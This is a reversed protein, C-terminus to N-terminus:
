RWEWIHVHSSRAFAPWQETVYTYIRAGARRKGGCDEQEGFVCGEVVTIFMNM